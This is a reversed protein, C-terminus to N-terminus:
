QLSKTFNHGVLEFSILSFQIWYLNEYIKFGLRKPFYVLITVFKSCQKKEQNIIDTVNQQFVNLWNILYCLRLGDVAVPKAVHVLQSMWAYQNWHNNRRAFICDKNVACYRNAFDALLYTELKNCPIVFKFSLKTMWLGLGLRWDRDCCWYWAHVFAAPNPRLPKLM